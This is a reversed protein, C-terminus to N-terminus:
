SSRGSGFAGRQEGREGEVMETGDEEVRNVWEMFVQYGFTLLVAGIFIGIIGNYIMGVCLLRFAIRRANLFSLCVLIRRM